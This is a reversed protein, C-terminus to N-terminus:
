HLLAELGELDSAAITGDKSIVRVAPFGTINWAAKAEDTLGTLM